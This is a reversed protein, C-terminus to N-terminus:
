RLWLWALRQQGAASRRAFLVFIMYATIAVAYFGPSRFRDLACLGILLVVGLDAAISLGRSSYHSLSPRNAAGGSELEVIRRVCAIGAALCFWAVVHGAPPTRGVILVGMLFRLAHPASNLAIDVYPLNRGGYSYVANLALAAMYAAVLAAPFFVVATLLGAGILATAAIVAHRVPFRGAAIPRNRKRPHAADVGADAVDNLIYIGSYFLVNFSLYLAALRVALAEDPPPGFLLAAAVVAAFSLHYRPKLLSVAIRM